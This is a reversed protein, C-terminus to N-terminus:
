NFCCHASLRQCKRLDGSISVKVPGRTVTVPSARNAVARLRSASGSDSDAELRPVKHLQSIPLTVRSDDISPRLATFGNSISPFTLLTAIDTM